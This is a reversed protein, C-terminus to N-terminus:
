CAEVGYLDRYLEELSLEGYELARPAPANPLAALAALFPRPDDGTFEFVLADDRVHRREVPLHAACVAFRERETADRFSVRVRHAARSRVERSSGRYIVEGRHLCVVERCVRDVEGLHHSSLLVATGSRADRELVAILAGRKTPDLGESAEDLIRVPVRPALTAAFLLQRKMGHSLTRVKARLPLAFETALERSRALAERERGRV